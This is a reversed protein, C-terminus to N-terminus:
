GLPRDFVVRAVGPGDYDDIPATVTFGMATHFAISATNQPSTICRVRERGDRRALAFFREYLERGLGEGRAAPSVGVFHIYALGPVSPSLLGVLFGALRGDREAVLSSRHFHDLFLRPLLTHITRGWWDDMVAVIRAHDDPTAARITTM